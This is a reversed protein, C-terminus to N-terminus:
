QLDIGEWNQSGPMGGDLALSLMDKVHSTKLYAFLSNDLFVVPADDVLTKSLEKYLALAKVPDLEADAADSQKDFAPNNFGSVDVGNGASGYKFVLGFWDSPYPYDACWGLYTLGEPKNTLDSTSRQFAAGEMPNLQVDINLVDHLQAQFWESRRQANAGAVYNFPVSPFGKGDPFGAAALAAKAKEPNFKRDTGVTADYGFMGPPIFSYAPKALGKAIVKVYADRDIAYTFATRVKQDNFPAKTTDMILYFTCLNSYEVEQGKLKPDARIADLQVTPFGAVDVDGSQYAAYMVAPDDQLVFDIEDLKAPTGSFNPNKVMVIKSGHDWSKIMFPGSGVVDGNAPDTWGAASPLGAREVNDKRVAYTAWLAAIQTFYAAPKVLTVQFTKDDVAKVGLTSLDAKGDQIEQANVVIGNLFAGYASAQKPDVLRQWSYVFDGATVSGKGDSWRYDNLHFTYTLGDASIGGNAQTPVEKAISPIPTGKDDPAYKLLGRWLAYVWAVDSTYSAQQPDITDPEGTIAYRLVKSAARVQFGPAFIQV